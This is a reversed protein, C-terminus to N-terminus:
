SLSVPCVNSDSTVCGLFATIAIHLLRHLSRRDLTYVTPLIYTAINARTHGSGQVLCDYAQVLFM